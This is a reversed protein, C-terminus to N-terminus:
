VKCQGGESFITERRNYSTSIFNDCFFGDGNEHYLKYKQVSYQQSNSSSSTLFQLLQTTTYKVKEMCDWVSSNFSRYAVVTLFSFFFLLYGGCKMVLNNHQNGM